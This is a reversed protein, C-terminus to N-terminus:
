NNLKEGHLKIWDGTVENRWINEEACQQWVDGIQTRKFHCRSKCGYLVAPLIISKYIKIAEKRKKNNKV